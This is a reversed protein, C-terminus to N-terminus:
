RAMLFVLLPEKPFVELVLSKPIINIKVRPDYIVDQYAIGGVQCQLLGLEPYLQVVQDKSEAEKLWERSMVISIHALNERQMEVEKPDSTGPEEIPFNSSNGYDEFFIDDEFAFPSM